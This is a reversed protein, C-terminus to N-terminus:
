QSIVSEPSLSDEERNGNGQGNQGRESGSPVGDLKVSVVSSVGPQQMTIGYLCDASEMTKKNHTIVIFQTRKSFEKVMAVFRDINADDLPADVEDLICFPSPKVLYIAFLLAIATLAREGSSLQQIVQTKKGRPRALVDIDAELPDPGTLTLSCEGGDFLVRFTNQFNEQVKQFTDLFMGSATHNIQDITKILSDKAQVLDDRQTAMFELRTSKEDYEEMALLNVPGLRRVREKMEALVRPTDEPIERCSHADLEDLAIEYEEQLREELHTLKGRIESVKLELDHAEQRAATARRRIERLTETDQQELSATDSREREREAVVTSREDRVVHLEQVKTALDQLEQEIELVRRRAEEEERVTGDREAALTEREEELRTLTSRCDRMEAELRAWSMRMEHVAALATERQAEAKELADELVALIGAEKAAEARSHDLSETLEGKEQDVRRRTDELEDKETELDRLADRGHRLELTLGVEEQEAVTRAEAAREIEAMLERIEGELSEGEGRLETEHEQLQSLNRALAQVSTRCREIAEEREVLDSGSPGGKGGSLVAGDVFQGTRTAARPARGERVVKFATELDSVLALGDLLYRVLDRYASDSNVV